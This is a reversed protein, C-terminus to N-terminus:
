PAARCVATVSADPDTDEGPLLPGHVPEHQPPM